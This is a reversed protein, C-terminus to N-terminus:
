LERLERLWREPETTDEPESAGTGGASPMNIVTLRDVVKSWREPEQAWKWSGRVSSALGRKSMQTLLLLTLDPEGM